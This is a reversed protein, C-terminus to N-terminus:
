LFIILCYSLLRAASEGSDSVFVCSCVCVLGGLIAIFDSRSQWEGYVNRLVCECEWVVCVCLQCRFMARVSRCGCM